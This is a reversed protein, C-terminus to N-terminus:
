TPELVRTCDRVYVWFMQVSMSVCFVCYNPGPACLSKNGMPHPYYQRDCDIVVQNTVNCHRGPLMLENLGLSANIGWNDLWWQKLYHNTTQFIMKLLLSWHFKLRFEFMKMSFNSKFIYKAFHQGNQTPRLTYFCILGVTGQSNTWCNKLCVVFCIDHSRMVAGGTSLLEKNHYSWSCWRIWYWRCFKKMWSRHLGRIDFSQCALNMQPLMFYCKYQRDNKLMSIDHTSIRRWSLCFFNLENLALSAYKRWYNLWLKKLCHSTALGNDSGISSYKLQVRLFLNWHFRLRFEYM